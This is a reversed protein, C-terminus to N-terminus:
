FHVNECLKLQLILFISVQELDQWKGYIVPKYFNKTCAGPDQINENSLQVPNGWLSHRVNSSTLPLKTLGYVKGGYIKCSFSGLDVQRNLLNWM